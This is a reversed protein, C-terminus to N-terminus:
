HYREQDVDKVAVFIQTNRNRSHESVNHIEIAKVAQDRNLEYKSDPLWKNYVYFKVKTASKLWSTGKKFQHKSWVYKQPPIELYKFGDPVNNPDGEIGIFYEYLEEGKKRHLRVVMTSLPKPLGNKERIRKFEAWLLADDRDINADTSKISVGVLELPVRTTIVRPESLKKIVVIYVVLCLFLISPIVPVLISILNDM